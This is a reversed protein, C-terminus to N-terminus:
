RLLAPDEGIFSPAPQLALPHHLIGLLFNEIWCFLHNYGVVLSSNYICIFSHEVIISEPPTNPQNIEINILILILSPLGAMYTVCAPRTTIQSTTCTLPSLHHKWTHTNGYLHGDEEM